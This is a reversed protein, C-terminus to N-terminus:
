KKKEKLGLLKERNFILSFYGGLSVIMGLFSIALSDGTFLIMGGLWASFWMLWDYVEVNM